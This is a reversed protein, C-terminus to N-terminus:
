APVRQNRDPSSRRERDADPSTGALSELVVPVLEVLVASAAPRDMFVRDALVVGVVLGDSEWFEACRNTRDVNACEGVTAGGITPSALPATAAPYAVDLFERFTTTDVTDIVVLEVRLEPFTEDREAGVYSGACTLGRGPLRGAGTDIPGIMQSWEGLPADVGATALADDAADRSVLACDILPENPDTDPADAVLNALGFRAAAVDLSPGAAGAGPPGSGDPTPPPDTPVSADPPAPADPSSSPNTGALPSAGALTDLIDGLTAALIDAAANPAVDQETSSVTLGVVFGEFTWFSLCAALSDGDDVCTSQLEGGPVAAQEVTLTGFGVFEFFEPIRDAPGLDLAVVGVALREDSDHSDGDADGSCGLSLLDDDFGAYEGWEIETSWDALSDTVGIDGLAEQMRELAIVPCGPVDSSTDPTAPRNAELYSALGARATEITADDPVASLGEVALNPTRAM